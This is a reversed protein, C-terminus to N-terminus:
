EAEGFRNEILTVLAQMAQQEDEGEVRLRIQSGQSAALMMVGMISKGNVEQGDRSVSVESGFGSATQVLKAAARAHLGLKNVITVEKEQV